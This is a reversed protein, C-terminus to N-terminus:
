PSRGKASLFVNRAPSAAELVLPVHGFFRLISRLFRRSKKPIVRRINEPMRRGRERPNSRAYAQHDVGLGPPNVREGEVERGRLRDAADYHSITSDARQGTENGRFSGLWSVPEQREGGHRTHPCLSERGVREAERLADRLHAVAGLSSTSARACSAERCFIAKLRLEKDLKSKPTDVSYDAFQVRRLDMCRFFNRTDVSYDGYKLM